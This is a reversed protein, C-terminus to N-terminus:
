RGYTAPFTPDTLAPRDAKFADVPFDTSGSLVLDALIRGLLSAFKAAHAAGMGVAVRPQGPVTDLIFDRDPPMDYLCTKSVLEPGAAAPLHEDLFSALLATEAPDPEYSRTEQTVWHPRLDRGLKVAPEGYVPFGYYLSDGHYAWIPFRDRRFDLLNPTAFYSVQEQSLAIPWDVGLDLLLTPLWSGACLVVSDATVTGTVTQVEVHRETPKIGIVPTRDAFEVGRRRALAVHAACAHRIDLIGADPQFYGVVDDAIHWQPWRDRIQDADLDEFPLGAAALSGRYTNLEEHGETGYRALDLGGTRHVLGLGTADEIEQWSEYAAPTLATYVPSHYSHRIIRSHDESAGFAHGLQFRELVLVDTEGAAALRYATACGLAGAGVVVHTYHRSM